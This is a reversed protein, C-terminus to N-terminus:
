PRSAMANSLSMIGLHKTHMPQSPMPKKRIWAVSGEIITIDDIGSDKLIVIMDHITRSTTIVGYKPFEVEMTWFVINPKIFVKMGKKFLDMGSCMEVAKKTSDFPKEYRCVSVLHKDM